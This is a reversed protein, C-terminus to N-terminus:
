ATCHSRSPVGIEPAVAAPYVTAAPSEPWPQRAGNGGGARIPGCARRAVRGHDGFRRRHLSVGSAGGAVGVIEVSLWDVTRQRSALRVAVTVRRALGFIGTPVVNLKVSLSGAFTVEREILEHGTPSDRLRAESLGFAIPSVALACATNVTPHERDAPM